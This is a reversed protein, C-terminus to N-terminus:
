KFKYEVIEKAFMRTDISGLPPLAPRINFKIWKSKSGDVDINVEFNTIKNETLKIFENKDIKFFNSFRMPIITPGGALASLSNITSLSIGEQINMNLFATDISANCKYTSEGTIVDGGEVNIKLKLGKSLPCTIEVIDKDKLTAIPKKTGPQEIAILFIKVGYLDESFIGGAKKSFTLACTAYHNEGEASFGIENTNAFEGNNENNCSCFILCLLTSYFYFCKFIQQNKM